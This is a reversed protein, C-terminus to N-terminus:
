TCICVYTVYMRLYDNLKYAASLPRRPWFTRCDTSQNISEAVDNSM